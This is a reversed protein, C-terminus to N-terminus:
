LTLPFSEFQQNLECNLVNSHEDTLLNSGRELRAKEQATNLAHLVEPSHTIGSGRLGLCGGVNVDADAAITKSNSNRRETPFTKKGHPMERETPFKQKGLGVRCPDRTVGTNLTPGPTM